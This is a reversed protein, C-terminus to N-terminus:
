LSGSIVPDAELSPSGVPTASVGFLSGAPLQSVEPTEGVWYALDDAFFMRGVSTARGDVDVWCRYEQGSPPRPLGPSSSSSPRRRRSSCRAATAGGNAAALEVRKSGAEGSLELTARQVRELATITTAQAGMRDAVDRYALIVRQQGRPRDGGRDDRGM